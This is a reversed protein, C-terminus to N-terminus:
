EGAPKAPSYETRPQIVSFKEERKNFHNRIKTNIKWREPTWTSPILWSSLFYIVLIMYPVMLIYPTINIAYESAEESAM